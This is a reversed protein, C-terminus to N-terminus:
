KKEERGEMKVTKKKQRNMPIAEASQPSARVDELEHGPRPNKYKVPLKAM